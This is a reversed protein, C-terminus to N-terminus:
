LTIALKSSSLSIQADWFDTEPDRGVSLFNHYHSYPLLFLYEEEEWGEPCTATSHHDGPRAQSRPHQSHLQQPRPCELLRVPWWPWHIGGWPTPHLHYGPSSHHPRGTRDQQLPLYSQPPHLQLRRAFATDGSATYSYLFSTLAGTGIDTHPHM